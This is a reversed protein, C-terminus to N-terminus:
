HGKCHPWCNFVTHRSHLGVGIDLGNKIQLEIEDEVASFPLNRKAISYITNFISCTSGMYKENLRVVTKVIKNDAREKLCTLSLNNSKSSFHENM